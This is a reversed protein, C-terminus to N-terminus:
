HLDKLRPFRKGAPHESVKNVPLPSAWGRLKIYLRSGDPRECEDEVLGAVGIVEGAAGRIGPYYRPGGWADAPSTEVAWEGGLQARLVEGCYAIAGNIVARPLPRGAHKRQALVQDLRRLSKWSGDLLPAEPAAWRAMHGRHAALHAALHLLFDPTCGDARIIVSVDPNSFRVGM